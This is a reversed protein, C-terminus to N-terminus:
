DKTPLVDLDETEAVVEEQFDGGVKEFKWEGEGVDGVAQAATPVEDDVEDM